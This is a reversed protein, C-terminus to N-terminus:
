GRRHGTRPKKGAKAKGTKPRMHFGFWLLVFKDNKGYADFIDKMAVAEKSNNDQTSEWLHLVVVKGKYDAMQFTKGDVTPTSYTSMDDGVKVRKILSLQLTGVDLPDDSQGGPIEPMTTETQAMAVQEM